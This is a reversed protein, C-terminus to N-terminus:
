FRSYRWESFWSHTSLEQQLPPHVRPLEMAVPGSQDLVLLGLELSHFQDSPLVLYATVLRSLFVDLVCFFSIIMVM